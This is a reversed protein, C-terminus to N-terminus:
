VSMERYSYQGLTLKSSDLILGRARDIVIVRVSLGQGKCNCAVPDSPHALHNLCGQVEMTDRIASIEEETLEEVCYLWLRRFQTATLLAKIYEVAESYLLLDALKEIREEEYLYIDDLSPSSLAKDRIVETSVSHYRYTYNKNETVRYNEDSWSKWKQFEEDSQFDARTLSISTGDAFPYIIADSNLVNLANVTHNYKM